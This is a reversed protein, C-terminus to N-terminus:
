SNYKVQVGNNSGGGGQDTFPHKKRYEQLDFSAQLDRAKIFDPDDLEPSNICEWASTSFWSKRWITWDACLAAIHNMNIPVIQIIDPIYYKSM